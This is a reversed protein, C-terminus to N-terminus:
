IRVHFGVSGFVVLVYTLPGQKRRPQERGEQKLTIVSSCHGIESAAGALPKPSEGFEANGVNKTNVGLVQAGFPKRYRGLTELNGIEGLREPEGIREVQRNGQFNGLM